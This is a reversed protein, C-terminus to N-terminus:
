GASRKISDRWVMEKNFRYQEKGKVFKEVPMLMATYWQEPPIELFQTQVCDFRYTHVAAKAPAFKSAGRILDWSFRLKTKEDLKKDTAFDMLNKLLFFRIKYNLYHFNLGTITEATRSFPIMLPFQDFYPLTEAHKADYLYMYMKGPVITTTRRKTNQLLANVSTRDGLKKVTEAFWSLSRNIDEKKVQIPSWPAHFIQDLNQRAV